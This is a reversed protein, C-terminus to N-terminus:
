RPWGSSGASLQLLGVFGSTMRFCGRSLGLLFTGASLWLTLGFGYAVAIPWSPVSIFGALIAAISREILWWLPGASFIVIMFARALARASVPQSGNTFNYGCDFRISRAPSYLGCQPCYLPADSANAEGRRPQTSRDKM